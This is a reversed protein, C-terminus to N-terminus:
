LPSVARQAAPASVMVACYPRDGYHGRRDPASESAAMLAIVNLLPPSSATSATPIPM